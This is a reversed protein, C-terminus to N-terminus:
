RSGTNAQTPQQGAGVINNQTSEREGARVEAVKACVLRTRPNVNVKPSM